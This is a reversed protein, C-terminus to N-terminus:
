YIKKSFHFMTITYYICIHIICLLSNHMIIIIIFVFYYCYHYMQISIILPMHTFRIFVMSNTFVGVQAVIKDFYSSM